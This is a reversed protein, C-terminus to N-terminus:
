RPRLVAEFLRSVSREVGKFSWPWAGLYGGRARACITTSRTPRRCTARRIGARIPRSVRRDAAAEVARLGRRTRGFVSEDRDPYRVDPYSHVQVFDLGYADITGSGRSGCRGAASRSWRARNSRSHSRRGRRCVGAPSRDAVRRAESRDRSGRDGLRARQHHRVFSDRRQPRLSRSVSRARSRPVGSSDLAARRAPDDLWAFDVLVLCLRVSSPAPSRSRPTWTTTSDSRSASWSAARTGSSAAAATPSCSGARWRSARRPWRRRFGRAGRRSARHRRRSQEVQQPRLRLRLEAQGPLHDLSLQHRRDCKARPSRTSSASPLRPQRAAHRRGRSASVDPVAAAQGEIRAAGRRRM